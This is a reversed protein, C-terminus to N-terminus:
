KKKRELFTSKKLRYMKLWPKEKKFPIGFTAIAIKLM